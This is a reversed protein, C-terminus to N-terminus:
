SQGLGELLKEWECGESLHSFPNMVNQVMSDRSFDGYPFDGNSGVKLYALGLNGSRTQPQTRPVKSHFVM